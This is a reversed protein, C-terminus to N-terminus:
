AISAVGSCIRCMTKPCWAHIAVRTTELQATYRATIAAKPAIWEGSPTSASGAHKRIPTANEAGIAAYEAVSSFSAANMTTFRNATM